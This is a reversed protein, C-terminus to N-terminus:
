DKYFEIYLKQPFVLANNMKTRQQINSLFSEMIRLFQYDFSYAALKAILLDHSICDSVKSHDTLIAEIIGGKGLYKRWKETM